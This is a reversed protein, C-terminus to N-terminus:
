PKTIIYEVRVFYRSRLDFAPRWRSDIRKLLVPWFGGKVVQVTWYVYTEDTFTVAIGDTGCADCRAM